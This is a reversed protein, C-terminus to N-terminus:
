KTQNYYAQIEEASVPRNFVGLEDITGTYKKNFNRNRGIAYDTFAGAGTWKGSDVFAGNNYTRVNTGDFTVAILQWDSTITGIEVDTRNTGGHFRYNGKGDSDIQFNDKKPGKAGSAFVSDYKDQKVPDAKVWTMVTFPGEWDAVDVQVYDDKGDFKLASGSKGAVWRAGHIQATDDGVAVTSGAGEDLSFAAVLGEIQALGQKADDLAEPQEAFHVSCGVKPYGLADPDSVMWVYTGGSPCRWKGDIALSPTHGDLYHTTEATDIHRRNSQCAVAMSKERHAAYYPLAITVLVGIISLVVLIELLTFGNESIKAFRNM